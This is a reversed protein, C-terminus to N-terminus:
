HKLQSALNCPQLFTPMEIHATGVEDQLDAQAGGSLLAHVVDTHGGWSAWMLDTMGDQPVCHSCFLSLVHQHIHVISSTCKRYPVLERLTPIEPYPLRRVMLISLHAVEFDVCSGVFIQTLSSRSSFAKFSM